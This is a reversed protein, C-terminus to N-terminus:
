RWVELVEDSEIFYVVRRGNTYSYGFVELTYGFEVVADVM